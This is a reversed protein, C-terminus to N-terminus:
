TLKIKLSPQFPKKLKNYKKLNKLAPLLQLNELSWCKRFDPNEPCDFNFASVPIIHELHLRSELFDIWSFGDPMTTELHKRLQEATYGVLDCWHRSNRSGKKLGRYISCSMRHNLKFKLENRHKYYYRLGCSLGDGIWNPANEGMPHKRGKSAEGIKRKTEESLKKGKQSESRRKRHDPNDWFKKQSESMKRRAELSIKKGKETESIKRKTEESHHKGKMWPIIGKHSESIKRKTEESHKYGLHANGIKRKTEESLPKHKYVGTPM